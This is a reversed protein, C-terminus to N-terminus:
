PHIKEISTLKQFQYLLMIGCENIKQTFIKELDLDVYNCIM